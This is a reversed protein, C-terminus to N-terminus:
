YSLAVAWLKADLDGHEPLGQRELADILRNVDEHGFTLEVFDEDDGSICEVVIYAADLRLSELTEYEHVTLTLQKDM